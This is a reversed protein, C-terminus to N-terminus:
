RECWKQDFFYSEQTEMDVVKAPEKKHKPYYIYAPSINMKTESKYFLMMTFPQFFEFDKCIDFVIESIKKKQLAGNKLEVIQRSVDFDISSPINLMIVDDNEM